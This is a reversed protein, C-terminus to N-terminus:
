EASNASEAEAKFSGPHSRSCEAFGVVEASSDEGMVPGIRWDKGVDAAKGRLAKSGISNGDIEDGAAEGALINRLRAAAGADVALAAPKPALKGPEDSFASWIPDDSLVNRVQSSESRVPYEIVQFCCIVGCPREHHTSPM